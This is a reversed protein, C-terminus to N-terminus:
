YRGVSARRAGFLQIEDNFSKPFLGKLLSYADLGLSILYAAGVACMFVIDWNMADCSSTGPQCTKVAAAIFGCVFLGSMIADISMEVILVRRTTWSHMFFPVMYLVIGASAAILSIASVAFMASTIGSVDNSNSLTAPTRGLMAMLIVSLFLEFGRASFRTWKNVKFNKTDFDQGGGLAFQNLRTSSNHDRPLAAKTRGGFGFASGLSSPM